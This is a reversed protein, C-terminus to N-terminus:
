NKKSSILKIKVNEMIKILSRKDHFNIHKKINKFDYYNSKSKTSHYNCQIHSSNDLNNLKLIKNINDKEQQRNSTLEESISTDSNNKKHRTYWYADKFKQWRGGM